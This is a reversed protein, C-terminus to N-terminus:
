NKIFDCVSRAIFVDPTINQSGWGPESGQDMVCLSSWQDAGEMPCCRCYTNTTQYLLVGSSIWLMLVGSVILGFFFFWFTGIYADFSLRRSSLALFFAFCFASVFVFLITQPDRM